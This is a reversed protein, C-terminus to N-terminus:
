VDMKKFGPVVMRNKQPRLGSIKVLQSYRSALENIKMQCSRQGAKDGMAECAIAAAKKKRTQRELYRMMQTARYMTYHRGEFECGEENATLIEQLREPTYRRVSFQTSFSVAIHKCNIGMIPRPFGAYVNGDIDTFDEGSQMKEYQDAMLVHGQIPAHDIAPAFHASIEYADFSLARGAEQSSQQSLQNIDSTIEQRILAELSDQRGRESTATIGQEGTDMVTRRIDRVPDESGLSNNLVAQEVAKQYRGRLDIRQLIRSFHQAATRAMDAAMRAINLRAQEPFADGGLAKQFSPEMLTDDVVNQCIKRVDHGALVFAQVLDEELMRLDADMAILIEIMDLGDMPEDCIARVRKMITRIYRVNVTQFRRVVYDIAAEYDDSTRM